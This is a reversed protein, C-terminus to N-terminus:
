CSDGTQDTGDLCRGTNNSGNNNDGKNGTGNNNNGVNGTGTNNCGVNGCGGTNGFGFNGSPCGESSDAPCNANTQIVGVCMCAHDASLPMPRGSLQYQSSLVSMNAVHLKNYM